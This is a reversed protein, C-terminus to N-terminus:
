LVALLFYGCRLNDATIARIQAATFYVARRSINRHVDVPLGRPCAPGFAFAIAFLCVFLCVSFHFM